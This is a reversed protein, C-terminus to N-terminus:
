ISKKEDIVLTNTWKDQWPYCPTGFASFVCFPVARSCGRAFATAFSIKSGDMNVAKTGTILKGLSKGKFVGEVLGMYLAYFILSIL